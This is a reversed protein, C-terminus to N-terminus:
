EDKNEKRSCELRAKAEARERLTRVSWRGSTSMSIYFDRKVSKIIEVFHSWSLQQSLTAVIDRGPLYDYFKVMRTLSSHSFGNGYELSLRYALQKLMGAGYAARENHLVETKIIKGIQWYTLVLAQNVQAVVHIKAAEILQRIERHLIDISPEIPTKPTSM